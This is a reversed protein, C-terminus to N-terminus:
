ERPQWIVVQKKVGPPFPYKSFKIKAESKMKSVGDERFEDTAKSNAFIIEKGDMCIVDAGFIDIKRYITRRGLAISCTFEGYECVYGRKEYWAKTERKYYNGKSVSSM